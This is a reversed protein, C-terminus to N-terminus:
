AARRGEFSRRDVIRMARRRVAFTALWIGPALRKTTAMYERYDKGFEERM